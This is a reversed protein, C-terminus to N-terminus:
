RYRLCVKVIELIVGSVVITDSVNLVLSDVFSNRSERGTGLVLNTEHCYMCGNLGKLGSNFGM